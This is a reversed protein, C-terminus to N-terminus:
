DSRGMGEEGGICKLAAQFLALPLSADVYSFKGTCVGNEDYTKVSALQALTHMEVAFGKARLGSLLAFFGSETSYDPNSRLLEWPEESVRMAECCIDDGSYDKHWCGDPNLWEFLRKNDNEM